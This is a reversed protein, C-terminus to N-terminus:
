GEKSFDLIGQAVRAAGRGDVLATGRECLQKRLGPAALMAVVCEAIDTATVARWDKDAGVMSLVGIDNLLPMSRLQNDACVVGLTPAGICCREWTAGGGAGIQLDHRAFFGALDPLDTTVVTSSYQKALGVIEAWHPNASTIVIEILGKFHAIERCAFHAMATRNEPDSGGLFIGISHVEDSFEYRPANSYASGLLAYKPGGLLKAGLPITTKYKARHDIHYNHDVLLSPALARNALDDIVAIQCDVRKAVATHWRADLGYHDVVVWDVAGLAALATATDAADRQWEVGLWSAPDATAQAVPAIDDPAHFGLRTLTHGQGEILAALSGVLHRSIFFTEAGQRRLEDALALCRMVHGVGSHETADVRFAVRM